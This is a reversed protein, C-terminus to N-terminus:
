AGSWRASRSSSSRSSNKVVTSGIAPTPMAIKARSMAPDATHHVKIGQQTTTLQYRSLIDLEDFLEPTYSM